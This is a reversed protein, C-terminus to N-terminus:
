ELLLKNLSLKGIALDLPFAYKVCFKRICLASYSFM